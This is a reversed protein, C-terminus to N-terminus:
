VRPTGVACAAGGKISLKGTLLSGGGTQGSGRPLTLPWAKRGSYLDAGFTASRSEDRYSSSANTSAIRPPRALSRSRATFSSLLLSFAYPYGRINSGRCGRARLL